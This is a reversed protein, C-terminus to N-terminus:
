LHLTWKTHKFRRCPQTRPEEDITLAVAGTLVDVMQLLNSHEGKATRLESHRVLLRKKM